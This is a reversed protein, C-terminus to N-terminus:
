LAFFFYQYITNTRIVARCPYPPLSDDSTSNPHPNSWSWENTEDNHFTKIKYFNKKPVQIMDMNSM